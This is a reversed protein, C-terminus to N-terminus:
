ISYNPSFRGRIGAPSAALASFFRGIIRVGV